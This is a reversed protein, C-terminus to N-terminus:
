KPALDFLNNEADSRGKKIQNIKLFKEVLTKKKKM